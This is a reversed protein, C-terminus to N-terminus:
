QRRQQMSRPPSPNHKAKATEYSRGELESRPTARVGSLLNRQVPGYDFDRFAEPIGEVPLLSAVVYLRDKFYERLQPTLERRDLNEKILVLESLWEGHAARRAETYYKEFVAYRGWMHSIGAVIILIAIAVIIRLRKTM